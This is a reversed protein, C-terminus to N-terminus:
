VGSTPLDHFNRNKSHTIDADDRTRTECAESMFHDADIDAGVFHPAYIGALRRDDFFAQVFQNGLHGAAAAQGRGRIARIRHLSRFQTENRDARRAGRLPPVRNLAM